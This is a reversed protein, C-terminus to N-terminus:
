INSTFFKVLNTLGVGNSAKVLVFLKEQAFFSDLLNSADEWCRAYEITISSPITQSIIKAKDGVLIVREINKTKQLYRGVQRHWYYEKDGLELMDGLVAVKKMYHPINDFAHIAAKMSEPNANYCDSIFEGRGNSDKKHEFRGASGKFTEVAKIINKIPIKLFYCLSVAALVNELYGCHNGNLVVHERERYWKLIFHTKMRSKDCKKFTVKRAQVQNKTKFGFKTIPFNFYTGLLHEQDGPIIGVNSSSFFKFIDKKERAISRLSGLSESHSHSVKTILAYTPRVVYSLQAMEGRANIGMEFVAVDHFLNVRLINLSVGIITNQNKLSVYSNFGSQKLIHGVLDKTYTKGVSGTIGVIPINLKKRWAKALSILAEITDEVHIIFIKALEEQSLTKLSEKSSVILGIAGKKISQKVFDHGDFNNGVIALFIEGKQVTRSDISVSTEIEHSLVDADDTIKYSLDVLSSSLFDKTLRM